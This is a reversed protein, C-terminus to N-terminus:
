TKVEWVLASCHKALLLVPSSPVQARVQHSYITDYTMTWLVCSMYLLFGPLELGGHIGSWAILVGWNLTIGTPNFCVAEWGSHKRNIVCTIIYVCAPSSYQFLGTFCVFWHPHYHHHCLHIDDPFNKFPAQNSSCTSELRPSLFIHWLIPIVLMEIPWTKYMAGHHQTM